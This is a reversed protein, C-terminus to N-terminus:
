NSPPPAPPQIIATDLAVKCAVSPASGGVSACVYPKGCANLRWSIQMSLIGPEGKKVVWQRRSFVQRTETEIQATPCQTEVALQAAAVDFDPTQRCRERDGDRGCWVARGCGEIEIEVWPSPERGPDWDDIPSRTVPQAPCRLLERATAELPRMPTCRMKGSDRGYWCWAKRKCGEAHWLWGDDDDQYAVIRECPGLVSVAAEKARADHLLGLCSTLMLVFAIRRM